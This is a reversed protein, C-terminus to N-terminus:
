QAVVLGGASDKRVLLQDGPKTGVPLTFPLHGGDPVQVHILQLPRTGAPVVVNFVDTGASSPVHPGSSDTSKQDAAIGAPPLVTLSGAVPDFELQLQSGAGEPVAVNLTRGDPVQVGLLQGPRIGEPVAIHVLMKEMSPADGANAPVPAAAASSEAPASGRQVRIISGTTAGAPVTIVFNRGEPSTVTLTQGPMVGAPIAVPFTDELGTQASSSASVPNKELFDRLPVEVRRPMETNAYRLTVFSLWAELGQRRAELQLGSCGFWHKRPFPYRFPLTRKLKYFESYRRMVRWGSQGNQPTIEVTFYMVGQHEVMGERPLRINSRGLARGPRRSSSSSSSLLGGGLGGLVAGVPGAVAFGLAACGVTAVVTGATGQSREAVVTTTM